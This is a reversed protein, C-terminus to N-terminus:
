YHIIYKTNGTDLISSIKQVKLEFATKEIKKLKGSLGEKAFWDWKGGNNKYVGESEKIVLSEFDAKAKLKALIKDCMKNAKDGTKYYKYKDYLRETEKKLLPDSSSTLVLLLKIAEEMLEFKDGKFNVAKKNFAEIKEVNIKDVVKDSIGKLTTRIEDIGSEIDPKPFYRIAISRIQVKAPDTYREINFRYYRMIDEPTIKVHTGCYGPWLLLERGTRQRVHAGLHRDPVFIVKKDM